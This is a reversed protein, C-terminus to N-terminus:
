AAAGPSQRGSRPDAALQAQWEAVDQPRERPNPALARQVAELFAPSCRGAAARPAPTMPDRGLRAPAAPPPKGVACHYLTAGLAYIDTWPGQAPGGPYQEPPAYGDSVAEPPPRTKQRLAQRPNGFDRLVPSGDDRIVISAPRIDCHLIGQAHVRALGHLLPFVVAKLVPEALQGRRKLLTALDLGPEEDMLMYATGNAEFVGQLAVLHRHRFGALAAGERRFRALGAHFAEADIERAPKVWVGDAARVALGVPFYEKVALALRGAPGRCRYTIGSGGRSLVTEVQYAGLAQGEDLVPQPQGAM